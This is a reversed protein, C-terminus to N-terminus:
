GRGHDLLFDLYVGKARAYSGRSLTILRGDGMTFGEASIKCAYQLNVLFSAGTKYFRSDALLPELVSDFSERLMISEVTSGDAMHFTYVRNLAEVYMLKGPSVAAVGERTRVPMAQAEAQEMRAVAEDLVTELEEARVPKLLYDMAKVRYSSVAFEKSSTLYVIVASPDTERIFRGLGIGDVVPMICDLLYLDFRGRDKICEMLDYSSQFHRIHADIDRRRAFYAATLERVRELEEIEDDCIAIQLM